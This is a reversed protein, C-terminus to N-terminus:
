EDDDDDDDREAWDKECAAIAKKVEPFKSWKKKAKDIFRAADRLGTLQGAATVDVPSLKTPFALVRALDLAAPRLKALDPARLKGYIADRIDAIPFVQEFLDSSKATLKTKKAGIKALARYVRADFLAYSVRRENSRGWVSENMCRGLESLSSELDKGPPNDWDLKNCFKEIARASEDLREPMDIYGLRNYSEVIPLAIPVWAGGKPKTEAILVLCADDSLPIGTASCLVEFFGM